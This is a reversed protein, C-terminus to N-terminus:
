PRENIHAEIGLESLAKLVMAHFDAVAQPKLPLRRVNGDSVLIDLTGGIFDFNIEFGLSRFPIPSTGFGRATVYFPVHWSHNLWPTLSLRIKGVVQMWLHLTEKTAVWDEYPLEPWAVIRLDTM